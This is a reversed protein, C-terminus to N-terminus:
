PQISNLANGTELIDNLGLMRFVVNVIFVTTLTIVFGIVSNAMKKKASSVANSDDGSTIIKLANTAIGFLFWILAVLTLIGVTASLINQLRNTSQLYNGLPGVGSIRGLSTERLALLNNTM